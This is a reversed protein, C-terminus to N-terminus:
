SIAYTGADGGVVSLSGSATSSLENAKGTGSITVSSIAEPDDVTATIVPFDLTVEELFCEPDNVGHIVVNTISLTNASAVHTVWPNNTLETSEVECGSLFGFGECSEETVDFATKGTESNDATLTAHVDCEIGSPVIITSTFRATGSMDVETGAGVPVGEHTIEAASAGAPAAFAVAALAMSALLLMKKISM